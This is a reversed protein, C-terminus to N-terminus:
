RLTPSAVMDESEPDSVSAEVVVVLPVSDEVPRGATTVAVVKGVIGANGVTCTGNMVM